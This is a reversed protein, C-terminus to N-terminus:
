RPRTQYLEAYGDLVKRVFSRTEEYPPIGGHREVAEPGANYAAIAFEWNQFREYLTRLYWASGWLNQLPDHPDVGLDHATSPMLQGLGVAHDGTYTLPGVADLCLSSEARVLSEFLYPDLGFGLAYYHVWALTNPDTQCAWVPGSLLLSIVVHKV